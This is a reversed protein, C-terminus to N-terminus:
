WLATRSGTSLGSLWSHLRCGALREPSETPRENTLLVQGDCLVLDFARGGQFEEPLFNGSDPHEKPIDDANMDAALMTIDLMKTKVHFHAHLQVEHGGAEVLLSYATVSVGRNHPMAASLFGGPAMCLDLIHPHSSQTKPITSARTPAHLEKGINQMM